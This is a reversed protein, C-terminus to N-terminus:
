KSVEEVTIKLIRIDQKTGNVGHALGFEADTLCEERAEEFTAYTDAFDDVDTRFADAFDNATSLAADLGIYFTKTTM